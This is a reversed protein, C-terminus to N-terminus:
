ATSGDLLNLETFTVTAGDLINLEAASSTVQGGNVYLSISNFSGNVDLTYGPGTTGICIATGTDYIISNELNYQSSFRPVFSTTGSGGIGAGTGSCNGSDDCLTRSGWFLEGTPAGGAASTNLVNNAGATGLRIAGTVDLRQGPGTTGIGIRGNVGNIYLVETVTNSNYYRFSNSAAGDYLNITTSDDLTMTDTLHNWNLSDEAVDSAVVSGWTLNGNSDNTLVQGNLIAQAAPWSYAIDNIRTIDGTSDVQFENNAGVSLPSTPSTNGIGVNGTASIRVRELNNTRFVLAQLDTTGVFDSSPDTGTNGTILWATGALVTSPDQWAPVTGNSVLLYNNTGIVLNSLTDSASAYLLDGIAYTTLGTGGFEPALETAEWTGTTITGLETIETTGLSEWKSDKAILINGSTAEMEGLDVGKLSVIQTDALTGTVDGSLDLAEEITTETINDISTVNSVSPTSLGGNLSSLGTVNLAGILSSSGQVSLAGEIAVSEKFSSPVNVNFVYNANRDKGALVAALNKGFPTYANNNDDNSLLTAIIKNLFDSYPASAILPTRGMLAQPNKILVNSLMFVLLIIFTTQLPYSFAKKYSAFNLNIKLPKEFQSLETPFQTSFIKQPTIEEKRVANKEVSM